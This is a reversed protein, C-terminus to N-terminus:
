ALRCLRWPASARRDQREAVRENSTRRPRRRSPASTSSRRVSGVTTCTSFAQYCVTAGFLALGALCSTIKVVQERPRTFRPRYHHIALKSTSALPRRRRVLGVRALM